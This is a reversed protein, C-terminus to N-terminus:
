MGFSSFYKKLTAATLGVMPKAVIKNKEVIRDSDIGDGNTNSTNGNSNANNSNGDAPSKNSPPTTSKSSAGPKSKQPTSM